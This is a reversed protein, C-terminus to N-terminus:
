VVRGERLVVIDDAIALVERLKHTIFVIGVGTETLGRLVRLLHDAEQPTLVGTPEDLILVDANRYLAKLIEVRQQMGVPLDEVLADPDVELGYKTSLEVVRLRAEDLDVLGRKTPEAGLVINEVVRMPPVLQFHQHVMGIGRSIADDPGRLDVVEDKIIIQGGDPRYMGFLVNVLTSKGAGNEGLLALIRGPKLEVSIDDNALVGPFQKTVHRAALLLDTV